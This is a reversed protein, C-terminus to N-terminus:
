GGISLPEDIARYGESVMLSLVAGVMGALFLPGRDVHFLCYRSGPLTRKQCTTGTSKAVATCISHM